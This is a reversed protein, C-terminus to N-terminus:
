PRIVDRQLRVQMSKLEYVGGDALLTEVGGFSDGMEQEEAVFVYGLPKSKGASELYSPGWVIPYEFQHQIICNVFHM